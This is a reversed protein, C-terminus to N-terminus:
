KHQLKLHRKKTEKAKILNLNEIKLNLNEIKLNLNEIKFNLNEIKFNRTLRSKFPLIKLCFNCKFKNLGQCKHRRHEM